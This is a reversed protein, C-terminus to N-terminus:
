NALFHKNEQAAEQKQAKRNEQMQLLWTPLPIRRRPQRYDAVEVEEFRHRVAGQSSQRLLVSVHHLEVEAAERGDDDRRGGCHLLTEGSVVSDEGVPRIRSGASNESVNVGGNAEGGVAIVPPIEAADGGDM